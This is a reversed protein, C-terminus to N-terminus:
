AEHNEILNVKQLVGVSPRNPFFHDNLEWGAGTQNAQGCGNSVSVFQGSPNAFDM